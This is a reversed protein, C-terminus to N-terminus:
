FLIRLNLLIMNQSYDFQSQNSTRQNYTYQLDAWVGQRFTYYAGVRGMLTDNDPSTGTGTYQQVMYFAGLTTYVRDLWRHQWNLNYTQTNTATTGIVLAENIANSIMAFVADQASPSWRLMGQFAPSGNSGYASDEYTRWQYGVKVVASTKATAQWTAGTYLRYTSGNLTQGTTQVNLYDLITDNVEILIQTKPMARWFFTGGVMYSNLDRQSTLASNNLYERNQMAFNLNLNGQAGAAGYQYLGNFGYGVWQNPTTQVAAIAGQSFLTGIPDEAFAGDARITLRNRHDFEFTSTANLYNGVTNNYSVNEYINARLAYNLVTFYKPTGFPLTLSPTLFTGFSGKRNFDNLLVNDNYFAGIGINALFPWKSEGLLDTWRDEAKTDPKDFGYFDTSRLYPSDLSSAEYSYTANPMMGSLHLTPVTDAHVVGLALALMYGTHLPASYPFVMGDGSIAHNSSAASRGRWPELPPKPRVAARIRYSLQHSINQVTNFCPRRRRTNHRTNSLISVRRPPAQCDIGAYLPRHAPTGFRPLPLSSKPM